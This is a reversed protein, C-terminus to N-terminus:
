CDLMVSREIPRELASESRIYIGHLLLEMKHLFVTSTKNHHMRRQEILNLVGVVWSRGSM